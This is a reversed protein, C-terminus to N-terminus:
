SGLEALLTTEGGGDRRDAQRRSKAASGGKAGTALGVFRGQGFRCGEKGDLPQGQFGLSGGGAEALSRGGGEEPGSLM